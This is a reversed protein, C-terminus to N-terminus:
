QTLFNIGKRLSLQARPALHSYTTIMLAVLLMELASLLTQRLIQVKQGCDRPVCIARNREAQIAGAQQRRRVCTPRVSPRADQRPSRAAATSRALSITSPRFPKDARSATWRAAICIWPMWFINLKSRPNSPKGPIVRKDQPPCNAPEIRNQGRRPEGNGVVTVFM